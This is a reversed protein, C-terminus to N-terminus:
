LKGCIESAINEWRSVELRGLKDSPLSSVRNKTEFVFGDWTYLPDDFLSYWLVQTSKVFVPYGLGLVQVEAQFTQM